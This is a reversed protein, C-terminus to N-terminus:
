GKSAQKHFTFSVTHTEAGIQIFSFIMQIERWKGHLPGFLLLREMKRGKPITTSSDYILPAVREMMAQPDDVGAAAAIRYLDTLDIGFEQTKGDTYVVVNGAQFVVDAPSNNDFGVRVAHYIEPRGPPVAFPDSAAPAITRVFAARAEPELFEVSITVGKLNFTSAAVGDDQRAKRSYPGALIRYPGEIRTGGRAPPPLAVVFVAACGAALPFFEFLLSGRHM